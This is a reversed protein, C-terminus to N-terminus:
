DAEFEEAADKARASVESALGSLRRSLDAALQRPAIFARYAGEVDKAMVTFRHRRNAKARARAHKAIHDAIVSLQDHLARTAAWRVVLDKDASQLRRHLDRMTM